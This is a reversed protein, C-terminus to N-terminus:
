RSFPISYTLIIGDRNRNTSLNINRNIRNASLGSDVSSWVWSGLYIIAASRATIRDNTEIGMLVGIYSLLGIGLFSTGKLNEGNYYQGLGQIPLFAGGTISLTVALAPSKRKTYKAYRYKAFRDYAIDPKKIIKKQFTEATGGEYIIVKIADKHLTRTLDKDGYRITVTELGIQTITGDIILGNNLHIKDM